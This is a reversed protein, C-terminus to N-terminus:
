VETGVDIGNDLGKGYVDLRKVPAIKAMTPLLSEGKDFMGLAGGKTYSFVVCTLFLYRCAVGEFGAIHTSVLTGFSSILVETTKPM